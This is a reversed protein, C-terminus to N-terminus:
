GVVELRDVVQFFAVARARCSAVQIDNRQRGDKGYTQDHAKSAESAAWIRLEAILEPTM